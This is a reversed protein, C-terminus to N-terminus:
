TDGSSGDFTAPNATLHRWIKCAVEMEDEFSGLCVDTDRLFVAYSPPWAPMGRFHGSSHYSREACPACRSAGRSPAGCSTCLSLERRIRYRRRSQENKREPNHSADDVFACPRCRSLGDYISGGCRTCCGAARREAYQRKEAQQRKARCPTCTTGGEVPPQRGCRICLGAEIREKQRRRSKARGARRKAEADAGGYKLGAAKGAAYRARDAARRKKLCPECATRGPAAPAKGCPVCIGAARRAVAQRRDHEREYARAKAPDRKPLGAERLSEVMASVLGRDKELRVVCTLFRSFNWHSPVTSRLQAPRTVASAGETGKRLETVPTSQFPLPDFGCIELLAPNRGLERLLSQISAHQFVVGAILARWM